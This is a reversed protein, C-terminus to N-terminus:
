WWALSERWQRAKDPADFWYEDLLPGIQTELVERYWFEFLDPQAPPNCFFSHGICFGAGLNSTDAAIAENLRIMRTCIEGVTEDSVGKDRLFQRFSKEGFAPKLNVFAFRRRLAYDVVALSRDATNMTGIIYVNEPVYFREEAQRAYALKVAWDPSRKDPEILLLLEGLIKALNGRNIEDIIFVYTEEPDDLARRCFDVFVGEHLDFGGEPTPRFGQIFDEYSYSQHFQVTRLRSPDQYQMLAYAFRRTVFSKGVGPAGQLILNKKFKWTALAREFDERSMFLGEVAMERNFPKRDPAPTPTPKDSEDSIGEVLLRLERLYARNTIDTLTKVPLTTPADWEGKRVWRVNRVNKYHPRSADFSYKGSVVGYGIIKTRGRKVFILDGENMAHAFNFCTQADNDPDGPYTYAAILAGRISEVSRLQDLDGIEDWGIAAKETEFLEDWHAANEGPAWLWARQSAALPSDLRDDVDRMELLRDYAGLVVELDRSIDEHSPVSGTSYYKYAITSSEYDNGLVAETRLDINRDRKFQALDIHSLAERAIMARHSLEERGRNRGLKSILETVGQNLTLYVGSMDGCFLFVCYTGHQTSRTERDDLLAIWPVAAWNGAGVSWQIKINPRNQCADITYLSTKIADMTNWLPSTKGFPQRRAIQIEDMARELLNHLDSSEPPNSPASVTPVIMELLPSFITTAERVTQEVIGPDNAIDTISIYSSISAGAWLQGDESHLFKLWHDLNSFDSIGPELRTKKRFTWQRQSNALKSGLSIAETSGANPFLRFIQPAASKVRRRVSSESFDSPHIAAAFGIEVGRASVIAFLQPMGAFVDTNVPNYVAFWLDKPLYGRVGADPHFGSTLKIRLSDDGSAAVAIEALGALEKHIRQYALREENTLESYKARSRSASLQHLDEVTISPM